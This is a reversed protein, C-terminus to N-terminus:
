ASKLKSKQGLDSECEFAAHLCEKAARRLDRAKDESWAEEAMREYLEAFARLHEAISPLHM